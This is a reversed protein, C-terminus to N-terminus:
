QKKENEIKKKYERFKPCSEFKIRTCLEKYEEDNETM